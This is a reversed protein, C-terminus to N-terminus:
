HIPLQLAVGLKRFTYSSHTTTQLLLLLLLTM